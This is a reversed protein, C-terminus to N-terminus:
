KSAASKIWGALATLIAGGAGSGAVNGLLTGLDLGHQAVEPQPTAGTAHTAAITAFLGLAQLIYHGIGGGLLGTVSNGLTGLSKDPIAAGTLNGGVIGSVISIILNVIDM